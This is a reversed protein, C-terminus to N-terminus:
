NRYKCQKCWSSREGGDYATAHNTKILLQTLNEGDIYVDDIIRFYKSRKMNKLEIIKGNRLKDVTFKKALRSNNKEAESKGRIEPTDVGNVRTM